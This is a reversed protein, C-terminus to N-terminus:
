AAKQTSQPQLGQTTAAEQPFQVFHAEGVGASLSEQETRKAEDVAKERALKQAMRAAKARKRNWELQQNVYENLTKVL